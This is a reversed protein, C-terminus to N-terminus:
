PLRTSLRPQSLRLIRMAAVGTVSIQVLILTRTGGPWQFCLLIM